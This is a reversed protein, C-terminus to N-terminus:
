PAEAIQSGGWRPLEWLVSSGAGTRHVQLRMRPADMSATLKKTRAIPMSRQDGSITLGAHNSYRDFETFVGASTEIQWVMESNASDSPPNCVLLCMNIKWEEGALMKGTGTLTVWTSLTTTSSLRTSTSDTQFVEAATPSAPVVFDLNLPNQAITLTSNSSQVTRQEFPNSGTGDRYIEAFGGVNQISHVVDGPPSGNAHPLCCGLRVHGIVLPVIEEVLFAFAGSVSENPGGEDTVFFLFNAGLGVAGVTIADWNWTTPTVSSISQGVLTATGFDSGDAYYLAPTGPPALETGIGALNVDDPDATAGGNVSTITPPAQTVTFPFAASVLEGPQGEDTVMFLFNAGVGIAGLSIADWNWTTDTVASIPQGVLTATGFDAGDAYYLATTGAPALDTGIGDLDTENSVATSGGNVSTIVPGAASPDEVFSAMITVYSSTFSDWDGDTTSGGSAAGDGVVHALPGGTTTSIGTLKTQGSDPQAGSAATEAFTAVGVVRDGPDSNVALIIATASSVFAKDNVDNLPSGQEMDEYVSVTMALGVSGSPQLTDITASASLSVVDGIPLYWIEAIGTGNGNLGVDRSFALTMDVGNWTPTELAFFGTASRTSACLVILAKNLTFTPLSVTVSRPTSSSATGSNTHVPPGAAM